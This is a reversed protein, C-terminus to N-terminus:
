GAGAEVGEAAESIAQSRSNEEVFHGAVVILALPWEVLGAAAMASIGGYWALSAKAPRNLELDVIPLKM